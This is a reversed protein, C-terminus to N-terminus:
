KHLSQFDFLPPQEGLSLYGVIPGTKLLVEITLSYDMEILRAEALPNHLLYQMKGQWLQLLEM